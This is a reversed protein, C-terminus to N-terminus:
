ASPANLWFGHMTGAATSEERWWLCRGSTQLEALIQSMSLTSFPYSVQADTFGPPLPGPGNEALTSRHVRWRPQDDPSIELRTLFVSRGRLRLLSRLGELPDPIAMLTGSSFVLDIRGLTAAASTLSDHFTLEGNELRRAERAMAATEVVAWRIPGEVMKRMTWYHAGAAGGFDLVTITPSGNRVSLISALLSLTRPTIADPSIADTRLKETKAVVVRAISAADYGGASCDAMAAAYSAYTREARGTARAAMRWLLPPVLDKVREKM